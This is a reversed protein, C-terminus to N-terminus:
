YASIKLETSRQRCFFGLFKGKKFNQKAVSKIERLAKPQYPVLNNKGNTLTGWGLTFTKHRM